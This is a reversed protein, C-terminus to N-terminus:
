SPWTWSLLSTWWCTPERVSPMCTSIQLLLLLLLLLLMIM